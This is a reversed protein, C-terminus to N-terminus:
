DFDLKVKEEAEWGIAELINELPALFAKEFQVKYDIYKHLGFEEPLKSPFAIINEHLTNPMKLAVFKVKNGDAIKPYKSALGMRDITHNYLLSGRVHIPCGKKYISSSDAYVDMGNVGRPFSIDIYNQKMFTKKVEKIKTQLEKQNSRLCLSLCDKLYDKVVNPTSSRVIEIGMVKMKPSSYRVGESYLIDFAYKKRAITILNPGICELKYYIKCEDIGFKNAIKSLRKNLEPQLVDFVFKELYTVIEQDTKNKCFRDVIEQASFYFSDTDGLVSYTNDTKLIKRLIDTVERMTHKLFVQGTTTIAEALRYDYYRFHSLALCGFFSNALIKLALQTLNLSASQQSSAFYDLKNDPLDKITEIYKNIDLMKNKADKRMDFVMKILTPIMGIGDKTTILGNCSLVSSDSVTNDYKGALVDDMTVDPNFSLIKEPSLNNQMIISPYLSTADVSITWGYKGPVPEMVYAGVIQHKEQRTKEYEEVINENLFYNYIISEWVRMASVVDGFQCKAFFAIQMALRVQQLKEELDNLLHTDIINYRCFESFHNKYSDRFSEGPLEVKNKGLEIEAIYDLKFSEKSGPNFKKYLELYDLHTIGVIDYTNTSEGNSNMYNRPKVIRWPSLYNAATDGIVKKIRNVLYPVDFPDSNWGSLVDIRTDAFFLILDKLLAKEDNDFNRFKINPFEKLTNEEVPHLSWVHIDKTTSNMMSVLQIREEALDPEPFKSGEVETEIDFFWIQTQTSDWKIEERFYNGVFQRVINSCGYYEFNPVDKYQEVFEKMDSISDFEKKQVPKNSKFVKYITEDKTPTFLHPRYPIKQQVPLGNEYGRYLIHNGRVEVNTYFKTM